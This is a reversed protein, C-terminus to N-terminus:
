PVPARRHARSAIMMAELQQKIHATVPETESKRDRTPAAEVADGITVIAKWAQFGDQFGGIRFVLSRKEKLKSLCGDHM